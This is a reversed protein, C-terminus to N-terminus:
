LLNVVLSPIRKRVDAITDFPVTALFDIWFRGGVFYIIENKCIYHKAVLTTDSIEDGTKSNIFTTRFNIIIDILFLVDIVSNAAVFVWSSM